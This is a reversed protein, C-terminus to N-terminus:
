KWKENALMTVPLSVSLQNFADCHGANLHIKLGVSDFDTDHCFPCRLNCGQEDAPYHRAIIAPIECKLWQELTSNGSLLGAIEAACERAKQNAQDKTMNLERERAMIINNKQESKLLGKGATSKSDTM